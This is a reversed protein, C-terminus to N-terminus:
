RVSRRYYELIRDHVLCNNQDRVEWDWCGATAEAAKDLGYVSFRREPGIASEVIWVYYQKKEHKGIYDNRNRFHRDYTETTM